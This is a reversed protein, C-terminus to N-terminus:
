NEIRAVPWADPISTSCSAAATAVSRSSFTRLRSNRSGPSGYGAGSLQAAGERLVTWEGEEIRTLDVVTSPEGGVEGGDVVLDM